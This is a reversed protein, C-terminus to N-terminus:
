EGPITITQGVRIKGPDQISNLEMIAKLTVGYKQAIGSLTEGKVVEHEVAAAKEEGRPMESEKVAGPRGYEEIVLPEEKEMVGGMEKRGKVEEVEKPRITEEPEVLPPRGPPRPGPTVWKRTM